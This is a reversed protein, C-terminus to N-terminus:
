KIYKQIDFSIGPHVPPDAGLGKAIAHSVGMLADGIYWPVGNLNERV